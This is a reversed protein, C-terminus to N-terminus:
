TYSVFSPKNTSITDSVFQVKMATVAYCNRLLSNTHLEAYCVCLALFHKLIKPSMGGAWTEINARSLFRTVVIQPHFQTRSLIVNNIWYVVNLALTKPNGKKRISCLSPPWSNKLMRGAYFWNLSVSTGYDSLM